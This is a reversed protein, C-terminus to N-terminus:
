KKKKRIFLVVDTDATTDAFIASGTMTLEQYWKDSIFKENKWMIMRREENFYTERHGFSIEYNNPVNITMAPEKNDAYISPRSGFFFGICTSVLATIIISLTRMNCHNLYNKKQNSRTM